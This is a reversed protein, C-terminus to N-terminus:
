SEDLKLIFKIVDNKLSHIIDSEKKCADCM